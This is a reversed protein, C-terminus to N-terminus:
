LAVELRGEGESERDLCRRSRQCSAAIHGAATQLIALAIRAVTGAAIMSMRAKHSHERTCDVTGLGLTRMRRVMRDANSRSWLRCHKSGPMMETGAAGSRNKLRRPQWLVM